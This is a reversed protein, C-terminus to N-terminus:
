GRLMGGICCLSRHLAADLDKPMRHMGHQHDKWEAKQRDRQEEVDDIEDGAVGDERL